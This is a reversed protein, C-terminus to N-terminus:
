QVPQLHIARSGWPYKMATKYTYNAGAAVIAVTALTMAIRRRRAALGAVAVLGLALAAVIYHEYREM